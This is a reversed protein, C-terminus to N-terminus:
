RKRFIKMAFRSTDVVVFGKVKLSKGKLALAKVRAKLQPDPEVLELTGKFYRNGRKVNDEGDGKRFEATTSPIQSPPLGRPHAKLDWPVMNMEGSAKLNVTVRTLDEVTYEMDPRTIKRSALSGRVLKEVDEQLQGELGLINYDATHRGKLVVAPLEAARFDEPLMGDGVRDVMKVDGDVLLTVNGVSKLPLQFDKESRVDSDLLQRGKLTRSLLRRVEATGEVSSLRDQRYGYFPAPHTDVNLRILAEFGQDPQIEVLAKLGPRCLEANRKEFSLSAQIRDFDKVGLIKEGPRYVKARACGGLWLVGDSPATLRVLRGPPAKEWAALKEGLAKRIEACEAYLGDADKTAELSNLAARLKVLAKARQVAAPEVSVEAVVGGKEVEARDAVPLHVVVCERDLSVPWEYAALNGEQSEATVDVHVVWAGIVGAGVAIVNFYGWIELYRVYKAVFRKWRLSKFFREFFKM